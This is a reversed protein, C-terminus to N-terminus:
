CEQGRNYTEFPSMFDDEIMQQLWKRNEQDELASWSIKEDEEIELPDNDVDIEQDIDEYEEDSPSWLRRVGRNYRRKYYKSDRASSKKSYWGSKADKLMEGVRSELQALRKHKKSM